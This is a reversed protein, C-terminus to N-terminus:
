QKEREGGKRGKSKRVETAGEAGRRCGGDRTYVLGPSKGKGDTRDKGELCRRSRDM